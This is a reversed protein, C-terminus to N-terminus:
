SPDLSPHNNFLNAVFALNLREGRVVDYSIALLVLISLLNSRNVKPTVFARSRIKETQDLMKEARELLEKKELALKDVGADKPAIQAIWTIYVESDKIDDHFNKIRRSSGAEIWLYLCGFCPYSSEQKTLIKVLILNCVM